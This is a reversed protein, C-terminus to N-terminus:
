SVKRVADYADQVETGGGYPDEFPDRIGQPHYREGEELRERTGADYGRPAGEAFLGRTGQGDYYDGSPRFGQEKASWAPAPDHQLELDSPDFADAEEGDLPFHAGAEVSFATSRPNTRQQYWHLGVLSLTALWAVATM